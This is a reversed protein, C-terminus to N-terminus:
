GLEQLHEQALKLVGLRFFTKANTHVGSDFDSSYHNQEDDYEKHTVEDTVEDATM